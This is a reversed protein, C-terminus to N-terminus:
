VSNINKIYQTTFLKYIIAPNWYFCHLFNFIVQVCACCKYQTGRFSVCECIHHKDRTHFSFFHLLYLIPIKFDVITLNLKGYIQKKYFVIYSTSKLFTVLEIQWFNGCVAKKRLLATYFLVAITKNPLKYNYKIKDILNWCHRNYIKYFFNHNKISRNQSVRTFSAM